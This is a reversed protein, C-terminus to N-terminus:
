EGNQQTTLQRAATSVNSCEPHPIFGGCHNFAVDYGVPVLEPWWARFDHRCFYPETQCHAGFRCGCACMENLKAKLKAMHNMWKTTRTEDGM